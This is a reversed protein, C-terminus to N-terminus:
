KVKREKNVIYDRGKGRGDERSSGDQRQENM